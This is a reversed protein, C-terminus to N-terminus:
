QCVITRLNTTITATEAETGQQRSQWTVTLNITKMNATTDTVTWSMSYTAGKSDVLPPLSPPSPTYTHNGATLDSHSFGEYKLTELQRQGLITSYTMESSFANARISVIQMTMLALLGTALIVLAIMVEILTFGKQAKHRRLCVM